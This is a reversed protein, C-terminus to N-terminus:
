LLACPTCISGKIYLPDFLFNPDFLENRWIEVEPKPEPPRAVRNQAPKAATASGYPRDVSIYHTYPTSYSTPTLFNM